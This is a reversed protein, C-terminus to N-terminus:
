TASTKADGHSTMNTAMDDDENSRAADIYDSVILFVNSKPGYTFVTSNRHVHLFSQTKRTEDFFRVRLFLHSVSLLV